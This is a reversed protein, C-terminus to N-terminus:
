QKDALITLLGLVVGALVIGFGLVALLAYGGAKVTGGHASRERARVTGLLAIAFAAALGVGALLAYVIVKGIQGWDVVPDTLVPM